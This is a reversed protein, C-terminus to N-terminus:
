LKPLSVIRTVKVDRLTVVYGWFIYHTDETDKRNSEYGDADTLPTLVKPAFDYHYSKASPDVPLASTEAWICDVIGTIEHTEGHHHEEEYHVPMGDCRRPNSVPNCTWHIVDGVKFPDGCCQIQWSEYYINRTDFEEVKRKTILIPRPIVGSKDEFPAKYWLDYKSPLLERLKQAFQIGREHFHRWQYEGPHGTSADVVIPFMEDVWEKVGSLSIPNEEQGPYNIEDNNMIGYCCGRMDSLFVDVDPDITLIDRVIVQRLKVEESIGELYNEIVPSKRRNYAFIKRPTDHNYDNPSLPCDIAMQLFGEYFARVCQKRDCYGRIIPMHVFENPEIEVLMLDDYKFGYGSEGKEVSNLVSVPTFRVVTDSGDFGLQIETKEYYYAISELQHRVREDNNDWHTYWSDFGRNGFGIHYKDGNHRISEFRFKEIKIQNTRVRVNDGLFSFLNAQELCVPIADHTDKSDYALDKGDVLAQHLQSLSNIIKGVYDSKTYTQRGEIDLKSHSITWEWAYDVLHAKVVFYGEDNGEQQLLDYYEDDKFISSVLEIPDVLLYDDGIQMWIGWKNDIAFTSIQFPVCHAEVAKIRRHIRQEEADFQTEKCYLLHGM